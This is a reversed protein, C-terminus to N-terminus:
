YAVVASSPRALHIVDFRTLGVERCWQRFGLSSNDFADGFEIFMNLSMLLGQVNERCADDILAKITVSSLKLEAVTKFNLGASHCWRVV